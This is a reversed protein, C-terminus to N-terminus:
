AQIKKMTVDIQQRYVQINTATCPVIVNETKKFELDIEEKFPLQDREITTQLSRLSSSSSPPTNSKSSPRFLISSLILIINLLGFLKWDM